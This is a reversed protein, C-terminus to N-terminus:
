SIKNRQKFLYMSINFSIVFLIALAFITIPIFYKGSLFEIIENGFKEAFASFAVAIISMMIALISIGKENSTKTFIPISITTAIISFIVVIAVEIYRLELNIDIGRITLSILSIVFHAISGAVILALALAYKSLVLKNDGYPLAISYNNWKSKEDHSFSNIAMISVMLLGYNIAIEIGPNMVAFLALMFGLIIINFKLTYVDKLLLAKM